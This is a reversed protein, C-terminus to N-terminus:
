TSRRYRLCVWEGDVDRRELTLGAFAATVTAERDALIGALVARTGTLRVLDAAYRVLLEAHLNAVVLDAPEADPIPTTSFAVTVDNRAANGDADVVAVPDVDVGRAIMGLKAAVIALIGSGSGVDLCTRGAEALDDIAILAARTTPHHGTGFGQGPEVIIAGPRPDWPPAITVRPSIELVPFSARFQAEWDTDPVPAWRMPGAELGLDRTVATAITEQDPDEFWARVILRATPEPDPGDDWPQRPAPTEGPRWDEQLGAAGLGFLLTSLRDLRRRPADVSLEAWM